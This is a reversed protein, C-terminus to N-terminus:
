LNHLKTTKIQRLFYILYRVHKLLFYYIHYLVASAIFFWDLFEFLVLIASKRNEIIGYLIKM